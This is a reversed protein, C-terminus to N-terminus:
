LPVNVRLVIRNDFDDHLTITLRILGEFNSLNFDFPIRCAWESEAKLVDTGCIEQLESGDLQSKEYQDFDRNWIEQVASDVRAGVGAAEILTTHWTLRYRKGKVPSLEGEVRDVRLAVEAKATPPVSTTTTTTAPSTPGGPADGDCGALSALILVVLLIPRAIAM